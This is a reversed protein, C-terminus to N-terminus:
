PLTITGTAPASNASLTPFGVAPAAYVTRDGAINAAIVQYFYTGPTAAAADTFTIINEGVQGVQTYIGDITASRMILFDTENKSNDTWTLDVGATADAVLNLGSPAAPAVVFAMSHMMDMEEHSLLHCHWVYEWGYNIEHNLVTVPNAFPDQFGLPPGMMEVGAPRTPDILRVSNPVSFPQTPTTPRFAIITHELPNVRITEKWGLENPEPAMVLGDWAVRNVLQANFLHVHITHTDV